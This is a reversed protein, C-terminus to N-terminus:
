YFSKLLCRPIPKIGLCYLSRRIEHTKGTFIFVNFMTFYGKKEQNHYANPAYKKPYARTPERDKKEKEVAKVSENWLKDTEPSSALQSESSKKQFTSLVRFGNPLGDARHILDMRTDLLGRAEQLLQAQQLMMSETMQYSNGIASSLNKEVAEIKGKVESLALFQYRGGDTKMKAAMQQRRLDKQKLQLAEVKEELNGNSSSSSDGKGRSITDEMKRLFGSLKADIVHDIRSELAGETVVVTSAVHNRELPSRSRRRRGHDSQHQNEDDITRADEEEEEWQYDFEDQDTM